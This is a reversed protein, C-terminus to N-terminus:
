RIADSIEGACEKLQRIKEKLGAEDGDKLTTFALAAAPQGKMDFIPCAVGQIGMQLEEDIMAYGSSYIRDLERNLEELDTKTYPTTKTRREKELLSIAQERDMYAAFVRGASTSYLPMEYGIKVMYMNSDKREICALNMVTGHEMICLVVNRDIIEALRKMPAGATLSLINERAVGAAIGCIKYGLRYRKSDEDQLVFHNAKLSSLIRHTSSAPIKLEESLESVSIGDMHRSLIELASLARDVLQM